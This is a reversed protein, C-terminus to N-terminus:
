EDSGDDVNYSKCIEPNWVALYMAAYEPFSLLHADGDDTTFGIPSTLWHTLQKRGSWVKRVAQRATDYARYWAELPFDPLKGNNKWSYSDAATVGAGTPNPMQEVYGFVDFAIKRVAEFLPTAVDDAYIQDGTFILSSPRKFADSANTGMWEDFVRSA